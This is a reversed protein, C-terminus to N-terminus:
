AWMLESCALPGRSALRGLEKFTLGKRMAGEWVMQGSVGPGVILRISADCFAAMAAHDSCRGVGKKRAEALAQVWTVPLPEPEPAPDPGAGTTVPAGEHGLKVLQAQEADERTTHGFSYGAPGYSSWQKGAEINPGVPCWYTGGIREGDALLLFDEEPGDYGPHEPQRTITTM